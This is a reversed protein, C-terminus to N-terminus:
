LAPAHWRMKEPGLVPIWMIPEEPEGTRNRTGNTRNRQSVKIWYEFTEITGIIDEITGERDGLRPDLKPDPFSTPQPKKNEKWIYCKQLIKITTKWLSSIISFLNNPLINRLKLNDSTEEHDSFKSAHKPLIGFFHCPTSRLM